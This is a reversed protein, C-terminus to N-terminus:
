SAQPLQSLAVLAHLLLILVVLFILYILIIIIDWIQHCPLAKLVLVFLDVFHLHIHILSQPFVRPREGQYLSVPKINLIQPRIMAYDAIEKKQIQKVKRPQKKQRNLDEQAIQPIRLPDRLLQYTQAIKVVEVFM